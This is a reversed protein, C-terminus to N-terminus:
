FNSLVCASLRPKAAPKAARAYSNIPPRKKEAKADAGEDLRLKIPWAQGHVARVQAQQTLSSVAAFWAGPRRPCAARHLLQQFSLQMMGEQLMGQWWLRVPGHDRGHLTGHRTTLHTACTWANSTCQCERATNLSSHLCAVTPLGAPSPTGVHRSLVTCWCAARCEGVHM